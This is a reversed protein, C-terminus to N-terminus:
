AVMELHSVDCEVPYLENLLGPDGLRCFVGDVVDLRVSRNEFRWRYVIRQDVGMLESARNPGHREIFAELWARFPEVPLLDAGAYATRNLTDTYTM